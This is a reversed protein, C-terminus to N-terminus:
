SQQSEDIWRLSGSLAFRSPLPEHGPCLLTLTRADTDVHSVHVLGACAASTASDKDDCYPILLMHQLLNMGPEFARVHVPQKEHEGDESSTDSRQKSEIRLPVIDDFSVMRNSPVLRGDAGYFYQRLRSWQERKRMEAARKLTGDSKPVEVVEVTTAKENALHARLEKEVETQLSGDGGLVVVTDVNLLAAAQAIHVSTCNGNDGIPPTDIIAGSAGSLASEEDRADATQALRHVCHLWLEPQEKPASFPFGYVLPASPEASDEQGPGFPADAAAASVSGPSAIANFAPDTDIRLPASGTRVAYNCLTTALATKGHDPAGVLMCRPGRSSRELAHERRRQLVAHVNLYQLMPTSQAVHVDATDVGDLELTCGHYTFVAFSPCCFVEVRTGPPLECGFVEATGGTLKLGAVSTSGASSSSFIYKQQM